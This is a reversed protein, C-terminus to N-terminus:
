LMKHHEWPQQSCEWASGQKDGSRWYGWLNTALMGLQVEYSSGRDLWSQSKIGMTWPVDPPWLMLDTLGQSQGGHSESKVVRGCEWLSGTVSISQTPPLFIPFVPTDSWVTQGSILMVGSTWCVERTTETLLYGDKWFWLIIKQQLRWHEGSSAQGTCTTITEIEGTDELITVEMTVWLQGICEENMSHNVSCGSAHMWNDMM